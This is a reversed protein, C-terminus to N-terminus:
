VGLSIRAKLYRKIMDNRVIDDPTFGIVTFDDKMNEAIKILTGLGSQERHINLDIQHSDGCFIIRTNRGMRTIITNIEHDTMNQVEDVVIVANNITIGRNYSTSIFEIKNQAKLTSYATGCNCLENVMAVYPSEYVAMKEAMSGKLFGMDRTPVASRYIKITKRPADITITDELAMFMGLFTKGTGASGKMVLNYDNDYAQFAEEQAKTKPSIRKLELGKRAKNKKSM